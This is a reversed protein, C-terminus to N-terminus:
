KVFYIQRSYSPELKYRIGSHANSQAILKEAKAKDAIGFWAVSTHQGMVYYGTVEKSETKTKM